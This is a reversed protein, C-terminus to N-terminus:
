SFLRDKVLEHLCPRAVTEEAFFAAPAVAAVLAMPPDDIREIPGGIEQVANRMECDRNRELAIAGDHGAQDVIGCVVFHEDGLFALACKEVLLTDANRRPLTQRIGDDSAPQSVVTM